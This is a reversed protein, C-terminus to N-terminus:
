AVFLPSLCKDGGSGYTPMALKIFDFRATTRWRIVRQLVQHLPYARPSHIRELSPQCSDGFVQASQNIGYSRGEHLLGAQGLRLGSLRVHFHSNGSNICRTLMVDCLSSEVLKQRYTDSALTECKAIFQTGMSGLDCGLTRAARPAVGDSLGGALILPCGLCRARRPRLRLPQGLRYAGGGCCRDATSTWIAALRAPALHM